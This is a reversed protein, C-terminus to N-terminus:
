TQGQGAQRSTSSFERVSLSNCGCIGFNRSIRDFYHQGAIRMLRTNAMRPRGAQCSSTFRERHPPIGRDTEQSWRGPHALHRAARTTRPAIDHRRDDTPSSHNTPERQGQNRSSEARHAAAAVPGAGARPHLLGIARDDRGSQRARRRLPRGLGIATGPTPGTRSRDCGQAKRGVNM